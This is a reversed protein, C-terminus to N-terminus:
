FTSQREVRRRFFISYLTPIIGLTLITSALLGSIITMAMPGWFDGSMALPILGSLTTLTTLIIPFSRRKGAMIIAENFPMKNNLNADIEEILLIANNVVIGALSIIGLFAMFGFAMNSMFLGTFVGIFSLPITMLIIVMKKVNGFQSVLIMVMIAMSIPIQEGISKEATESGEQEGGFSVGYGPEFDINAIRRNITDILSKANYGEANYASVTITRRRDRHRIKGAEWNLKLHAVQELPVKTGTMTPINLDQIESISTRENDVVKAVIPISTDGERFSTVMGGRLSTQLENSISSSSVGIRRAQDQNVSISLKPILAGWDDRINRVGEISECIQTIDNTYAYLKDLNKGYIRVQIPAGVPPGTELLKVIGRASEYNTDFYKSLDKVMKSALDFSKANIMFQAYNSTRQEGQVGGEFRPGQEGIYLAINNIKDSYTKLIYQEAKIAQKRTERYDSGEPLYFDILFQARDSAPFFIKKVHPAVFTMVLVLLVVGLSITSFRYKLCFKMCQEYGRIWISPSSPSKNTKGPKLFYVCLLPILTMSVFFSSMLVIGVGYTITRCFIGVASKALAIPLFAAVTTGTATLLPIALEKSACIAAETTSMGKKVYATISETMVIGNDVMMGLSIILSVLSIQHVAIGSKEMVTISIMYALPILMSIIISERWGLLLFMIFVVVLVAQWLNNTFESIKLFVWKPQFNVIHIDVGLYVDKQIRKILQTMHHGLELIQGGTQMEVEIGVAEKGMYRMQMQPPDITERKIDAIDKLFVHNTQGPLAIITKGIDEITTFEGTTELRINQPGVKIDGGAVIANQQVMLESILDGNVGLESLRSNSYSVIIEEDQEGIVNVRAVYELQEIDKKLDDAIDALEKNTFGDGTIALVFSQVKGMDSNLWPVSASRPLRGNLDTLKIRVNDWIPKTFEISEYIEAFVYSVGTQSISTITKLEPVEKLKEEIKETILEEIKQPSAGPMNTIIVANWKPFEPFEEKAIKQISQIGLLIILGFFFLVVGKHNLAYKTM